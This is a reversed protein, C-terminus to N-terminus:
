PIIIWRTQIIYFQRYTPLGYWLPMAIFIYLIYMRNNHDLSANIYYTSNNSNKAVFPVRPDKHFINLSRSDHPDLWKYFYYLRSISNSLYKYDEESIKFEIPGELFPEEFYRNYIYPLYPSKKYFYTTYLNFKKQDLFFIKYLWEFNKLLMLGKFDFTIDKTFNNHMKKYIKYYKKTLIKCRIFKDYIKYNKIGKNKVIYIINNKLIIYKKYSNVYKYKKQLIKKQSIITEKLVDNKNEWFNIEGEKYLHRYLIHDKFKNKDHFINIDDKSKIVQNYYYYYLGINNKYGKYKSSITQERLTDWM